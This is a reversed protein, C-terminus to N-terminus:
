VMNVGNEWMKECTELLEGEKSCFPNAGMEEPHSSKERSSIVM